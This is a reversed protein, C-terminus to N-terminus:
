RFEPPKQKQDAPCAMGGAFSTICMAAAMIGTIIAAAFVKNKM